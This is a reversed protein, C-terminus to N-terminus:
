LNRQLTSEFDLHPHQTVNQFLAFNVLNPNYPSRKRRGLVLPMIMAVTAPVMGAGVAAMVAASDPTANTAMVRRKKKPKMTTTNIRHQREYLIKSEDVSHFSPEVELLGGHSLTMNEKSGTVAPLVTLRVTRHSTLANPIISLSRQRNKPLKYGKTTSLLVWQGNGKSPYTQPHEPKQEEVYSVETPRAYQMDKKKYSSYGSSPFGGPMGDTIIGGQEYHHSSVRRSDEYSATQHHHDHDCDPRQVPRREPELEYQYPRNQSPKEWSPKSPVESPWDHDEQSSEYQPRENNTAPKPFTYYSSVPKTEFNNYESEFNGYNSSFRDTNQDRDGGYSNFNHNSPPKSIKYANAQWKSIKSRTWPVAELAVWGEPDEYPHKHRKADIEDWQSLRRNNGDQQVKFSLKDTIRNKDSIKDTTIIDIDSNQPMIEMQKLRDKVKQDANKIKDAYEKLFKNILEPSFVTKKKGDFNECSSGFCRAADNEKASNTLDREHTSGPVVYDKTRRDSYNIVSSDRSMSRDQRSDGEKWPEAEVITIPSAGPVDLQYTRIERGGHQANSSRELQTQSNTFHVTEGLVVESLLVVLSVTKFILCERLKIM